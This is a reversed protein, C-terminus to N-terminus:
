NVRRRDIVNWWHEVVSTMIKINCKSSCFRALGPVFCHEETYLLLLTCIYKMDKEIKLPELFRNYEVTSVSRFIKFHSIIQWM